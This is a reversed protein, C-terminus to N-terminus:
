VDFNKNYVYHGLLIWSLHKRICVFVLIYYDIWVLNYSWIFTEVFRVWMEYFYYAVDFAILTIIQIPM